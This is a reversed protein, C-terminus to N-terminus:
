SNYEKGKGNRKWKLYEGEFILKNTYADYEKGKGAPEYIIYRRFFAKYHTLRRELNKQLFKSHKAIELKRRETIHGFLLKLFYTGQFKEM